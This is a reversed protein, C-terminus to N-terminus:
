LVGVEKAKVVSLAWDLLDDLKMFHKDVIKAFGALAKDLDRFVSNSKKRTIKKETELMLASTM